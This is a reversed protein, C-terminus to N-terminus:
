DSVDGEDGDTIVHFYVPVTASFNAPAKGQAKAPLPKAEGMEKERFEGGKAGAGIRAASDGGGEACAVANSGISLALAPTAGLGFTLALSALLAATRRVKTM